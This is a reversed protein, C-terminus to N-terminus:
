PNRKNRAAWDLYNQWTENLDSAAAGAGARYAFDGVQRNNQAFKRLVPDEIRGIAASRSQKEEASWERGSVVGIGCGARGTELERALIDHLGDIFGHADKISMGSRRLREVRGAAEAQSMLPDRPPTSLLTALRTAEADTMPIPSRLREWLTGPEP